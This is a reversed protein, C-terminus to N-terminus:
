KLGVGVLWDYHIFIKFAYHHLYNRYKQCAALSVRDSTWRNPIIPRYQDVVVVKRMDEFSPDAPVIDWYPPKYDENIGPVSFQVLDAFSM